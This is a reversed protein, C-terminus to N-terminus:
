FRSTLKNNTLSVSMRVYFKNLDLANFIKSHNTLLHIIIPGQTYILCIPM